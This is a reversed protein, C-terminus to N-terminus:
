PKKLWLRSKARLCRIPSTSEHNEPCGPAVSLSPNSGGIRKLNALKCHSNMVFFRQVGNVAYSRWWGRRWGAVGALEVIEGPAPRAQEVIVLGGPSGTTDPVM